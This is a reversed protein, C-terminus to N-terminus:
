EHNGGQDSTSTRMNRCLWADVDCRRYLILKGCKIYPATDGTLRRKAWTSSAIGTYPEMQDTRLYEGFEQPSQPNQTVM